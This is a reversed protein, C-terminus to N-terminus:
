SHTVKTQMVSTYMEVEDAQISRFIKIACGFTKCKKRGPSHWDTGGAVLTVAKLLLLEPYYQTQRTDGMM